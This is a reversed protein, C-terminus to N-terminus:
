EISKGKRDFVYNYGEPRVIGLRKELELQNQYAIDAQKNAVGPEYSIMGTAIQSLEYVAKTYDDFLKTIEEM